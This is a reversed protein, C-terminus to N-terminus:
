YMSWPFHKPEEKPPATGILQCLRLLIIRVAVVQSELRNIATKLWFALLVGITGLGLWVFLQSM